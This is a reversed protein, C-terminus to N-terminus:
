EAAAAGDGAAIRDKDQELIAQQIDWAHGLHQLMAHRAGQVDKAAVRDVICAHDRTVQEHLGPHRTVRLRMEQMVDRISDLLLILLPNHTTAALAQHFDADVDAFLEPLDAARQIDVMIEKLGAIDEDTAQLAALGAIEVELIQRVQHLHHISIGGEQSQLLLSLPQVIQDRGVQRVITGVGPRTELLGKAMLIRVAERIVTRSVGLEYTLERESPLRMGPELRGNVIVRQIEEVVRDVLGGKVGVNQFLSQDQM